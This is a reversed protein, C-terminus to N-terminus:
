RTDDREREKLVGLKKEGTRGEEKRRPVLIGLNQKSGLNLNKPLM